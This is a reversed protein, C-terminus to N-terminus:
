GNSIEDSAGRTRCPTGSAPRPQSIGAPQSFRPQKLYRAAGDLQRKTEAPDLGSLLAAPGLLQFVATRPCGIEFLNVAARFLRQVRTGEPAGNAMFSFTDQFVWTNGFTSRPMAFTRSDAVACAYAWLESVIDVPRVPTAAIEVPRPQKALSQIDAADLTLLEDISLPIKFLGTAEHRTNPARLMANPRYRAWDITQHWAPDLRPDDLAGDPRCPTPPALLRVAQDVINQCFQGAAFEYNTQPLTGAVPTRFLLHIGRNGSFFPLVHERPWGLRLLATVTCRAPELVTALDPKGDFDIAFWAAWVMGRYGQLSQERDHARQYTVLDGGYRFVSLSASETLPLARDARVYRAFTDDGPVLTRSGQKGGVVELLLGYAAAHAAAPDSPSGRSSREAGAPHVGPGAPRGEAILRSIEDLTRSSLLPTAPLEAGEELLERRHREVDAADRDTFVAAPAYSHKKLLQRGQARAHRICERVNVAGAVTPTGAPRFDRVFCPRRTRGAGGAAVDIDVSQGQHLLLARHQQHPNRFRGSVVQGAYRGAAVQFSLEIVKGGDRASSSKRSAV